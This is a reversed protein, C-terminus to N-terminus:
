CVDAYALVGAECVVDQPEGEEALAEPLAEESAEQRISVSAPTHALPLAEAEESRCESAEQRRSVSAPTHALPLAEEAEEEESRCESAEV